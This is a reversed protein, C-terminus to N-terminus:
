SLQTALMGQLLEGYSMFGRKGHMQTMTLMECMCSCINEVPQHLSM